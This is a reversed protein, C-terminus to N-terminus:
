IMAAAATVTKGISATRMIADPTMPKGPGAIGAAELFVIRGHEAVLGVVGGVEDTAVAHDLVARAAAATPLPPPPPPPAAVPAAPPACAATLVCFLRAAHNAM